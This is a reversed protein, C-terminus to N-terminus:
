PIALMVAVWERNILFGSKLDRNNAICSNPQILPTSNTERLM